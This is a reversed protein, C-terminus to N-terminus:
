LSDFNPESITHENDTLEILFILVLLGWKKGVKEREKRSLVTDLIQVWGDGEFLGAAMMEKEKCTRREEVECESVSM